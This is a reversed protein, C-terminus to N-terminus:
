RKLGISDLMKVDAEAHRLKGAERGFVDDADERLATEDKIMGGAAVVDVIMGRRLAPDGYREAGAIKRLPREHRYKFLSADRSFLQLSDNFIKEPIKETSKEESDEERRLEIDNGVLDPIWFGFSFFESFLPLLVCRSVVINSGGKFCRRHKTSDKFFDRFSKRLNYGLRSM